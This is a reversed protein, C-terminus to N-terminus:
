MLPLNLFSASWLLRLYCRIVSKPSVQKETQLNENRWRCASCLRRRYRRNLAVGLASEEEKVRSAEMVYRGFGMSKRVGMLWQDGVGVVVGVSQLERSM